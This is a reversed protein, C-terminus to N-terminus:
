HAEGCSEAWALVKDRVRALLAIPWCLAYAVLAVGGFVVACATFFILERNRM